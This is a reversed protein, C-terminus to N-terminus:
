ALPWPALLLVPQLFDQKFVCLFVVETQRDTWGAATLHRYSLWREQRLWSFFVEAICDSGLPTILVILSQHKNVSSKSLM